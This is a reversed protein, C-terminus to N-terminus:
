GIKRPNLGVVPKMFFIFAEITDIIDDVIRSDILTKEVIRHEELDQLM